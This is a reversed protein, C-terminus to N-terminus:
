GGTASTALHMLYEHAERKRLSAAGFVKSAARAHKKGHDEYECVANYLGWATGEFDPLEAGTGKGHFLELVEKRHGRQRDREKEWTALRDLGDQEFPNVEPQKPDPYTAETTVQEVDANIYFGALINAAEQVAQAKAEIGKWTASLFSQVSKAMDSTHIVRYQESFNSGSMILTNQCVVRVPTLRVTVAEVGSLPSYALMYNDHEVGKVDFSPLKTTIFLTEGKGLIGLTEVYRGTGQDWAACFDAHTIENFDLGVVSVVERIQLGSLKDVSECIIAKHNTPLGSPSCIVPETRVVVEGIQRFADLAGVPQDVVLGLGHWAPKRLSLFKNEQMLNHAM